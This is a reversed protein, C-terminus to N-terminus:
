ISPKSPLCWLHHDTAIAAGSLFHIDIREGDATNLNQVFADHRPLMIIVIIDNM